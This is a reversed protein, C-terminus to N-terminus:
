WATCLPGVTSIIVRTQACMVSLSREDAADAIILPLDDCEPTLVRRLAELKEISRGAAAWKLGSPGLLGALYRCVLRGVFSTAGFVVIDYAKADM